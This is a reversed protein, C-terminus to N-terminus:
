CSGDNVEDALNEKEQQNRSDKMIEDVLDGIKYIDKLTLEFYKEIINAIDEVCDERKENM